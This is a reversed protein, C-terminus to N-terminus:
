KESENVNKPAVTYIFNNSILSFGALIMPIFGMAIAFISAIPPVLFSFPLPHNKVGYIKQSAERKMSDYFLYGIYVTSINIINFFMIGYGNTDLSSKPLIHLVNQLTLVLFPIPIFIVSYYLEFVTFFVHFDRITM